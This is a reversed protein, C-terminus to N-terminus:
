IRCCRSSQALAVTQFLTVAVTEVILQMGLLKDILRDTDLLTTLVCTRTATSRRCEGGLELLYDRMTYFHRAEDHAQSTAAMKAEADELQLALDASISWAALEGWLITSSRRWRGAGEQRAAAVCRAEGPLEQLVKQRGLGPTARRPSASGSSPAKAHKRQAEDLTDRELLRYPPWQAMGQNYRSRSQGTLQHHGRDVGAVQARGAGQARGRRDQAGGRGPRNSRSISRSPAPPAEKDYQEKQAAYRRSRDRPTPRLAAGRLAQAAGGCRGRAMELARGLPLLLRARLGAHRRRRQRAGDGDGEVAPAAPRDGRDTTPTVSRAPTSLAKQPPSGYADKFKQAALAADGQDCANAKAAISRGAFM